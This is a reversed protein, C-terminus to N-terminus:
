SLVKQQRHTFLIWTLMQCRYLVPFLLTVLLLLLNVKCLQDGLDIDPPSSVSSFIVPLFFSWSRLSGIYVDTLRGQPQSDKHDSVFPLNDANGDLTSKSGQSRLLRQFTVPFSRLMEM